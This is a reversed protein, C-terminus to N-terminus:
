RIKWLGAMVAAAGPPRLDEIRQCIEEIADPSFEFDHQLSARSRGEDLARCVAVELSLEQFWARISTKYFVDEQTQGKPPPVRVEITEKPHGLLMARSIAEARAKYEPDKIGAGGDKLSRKLRALGEIAEPGAGAWLRQAARMIEIDARTTIQAMAREVIARIAEPALGYRRAVAGEARPEAAARAVALDRIQSRLETRWDLANRHVEDLDAQSVRGGGSLIRTVEDFMRTALGYEARMHERELACDREAEILSLDDRIAEVTQGAALAQAKLGKPLDLLEILGDPVRAIQLTRGLVAARSEVAAPVKELAVGHRSAFGERLGRIRVAFDAWTESTDSRSVLEWGGVAEACRWAWLVASSRSIVIDVNERALGFVAAIDDRSEGLADALVIQANRTPLDRLALSPLAELSFSPDIRREQEPGAESNAEAFARDDDFEDHRTGWGQWLTALANRSAVLLLAKPSDAAALQGGRHLKWFATQVADDINPDDPYKRALSRRVADLLQRTEADPTRM